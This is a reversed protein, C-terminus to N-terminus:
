VDFEETKLVEGADGLLDQKLRKGEISFGKYQGSQIKALTDKDHVKVGILLGTTGSTIGCAKSIEKTVPFAFLVDGIQKGAFSYKDSSKHMEGAARSNKMFDAAANLMTNEPIHDNQLDYYPKGDKECVIAWGFVLGKDSDVKTIDVFIEKNDM